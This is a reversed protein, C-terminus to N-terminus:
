TPPTAAVAPEILALAEDLKEPLTGGGQAFDPRGGGRGGVREAVLQVLQGAKFRGILDKTVGAVLRV